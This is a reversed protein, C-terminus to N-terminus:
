LNSGQAAWWRIGPSERAGTCRPEGAGATAPLGCCRTAGRQVAWLINNRRDAAEVAVLMARRKGAITAVTNTAIPLPGIRAPKTSCASEARGSDRPSLVRTKPM